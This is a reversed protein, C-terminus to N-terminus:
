GWPLSSMSTYITYSSRLPSDPSPEPAGTLSAAALLPERALYCGDGARAQGRGLFTQGEGDSAGRTPREIEGESRKRCFRTSRMWSSANKSLSALFFIPPAADSRSAGPAPKARPAYLGDLYTHAAHHTPFLDCGRAPQSPVGM